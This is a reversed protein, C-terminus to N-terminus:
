GARASKTEGAQARQRNVIRAAVEKQRGRDRGEKKFERVLEGYERERRQNAGRPM